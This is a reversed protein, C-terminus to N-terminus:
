RAVGKAGLRDAVWPVVLVSSLYGSGLGIVLTIGVSFLAPHAAFVLVGAGILSSLASLTVALVTAGHGRERMDKTSRHAMFIGYDVCLGMVVIFAVLTAVNLKLGLLNVGGALWLTSTLVPILAAAVLAPSRLFFTTFALEGIHSDLSSYM